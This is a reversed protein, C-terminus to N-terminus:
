RIPVELQTTLPDGTPPAGSLAITYTGAVLNADAVYHGPELLRLAVTTPPSGAPGLQMQATTVALEKGAADFFTVHVENAGPTGPDAYVQASQGTEFHVTYITPLGAQASVDIRQPIHRTTLALTVEVPTPNGAGGAVLLTVRWAGSISLNAGTAQYAGGGLPALALESAGVDPRSPLRFSLRVTRGDLAAGTDFATLSARFVNFGPTGPSATLRVRVTTGFDSGEASAATPSASVAAVAQSPPALNVLSASLVLVAAGAVLEVSGARRIPTLTRGAAPVNRFHNLAGVAAVGALLASKGILLWGFSTAVLNAWPGLESLARIVGTGAVLVIGVTASNAFRRTTAATEDSPRGRLGLLLGGLGGIWAGVAVVHVFQVAVNFATAGSAAAHSTLTDTLMTLVAGGGVLALGSRTPHGRRLLVTLLAGTVLLPVARLLLATELSSGWMDGLGLGAAVLQDVLIVVTGAFAALWGVSAMLLLVPPSTSFIVTGAFAAGLLAILGAYFLWRGLVALPSLPTGNGSSAANATSAPGTAPSANVGFAFSGSASHGDVASVSRWAVTYVGSGIARLSVELKERAGAIGRAPGAAVTAGASDLVNISSLRADVAETFTLTVSTPAADLDAGAAPDSSALLAHASAQTVVALAALM